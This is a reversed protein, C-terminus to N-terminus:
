GDAEKLMQRKLTQTQCSKRFEKPSMGLQKHFMISFCHCSEFGLSNAISTISLDSNALLECAQKLRFETLYEKTSQGLVARFSRFLHSRSIGVYEAIDEVTIAYSYHSKIYEISKQVYNYASKQTGSCDEAKMFLALLTYLQGTALVSQNFSNGKTNCLTLMQQKVADGNALQLAFPMEESFDTDDLIIPADSGDFGVWLFEWPDDKDAEVTVETRPYVLFADGAQLQHEGHQFSYSGSGSIVYHILYHDRIGPGWRYASDCKQVGADYVSLASLVREREEQDTEYFESM